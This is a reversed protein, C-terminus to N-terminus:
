VIQRISFTVDEFIVTRDIASDTDAWLELTDGLDVAILGSLSMSGTDTGAALTRHAHLNAFATAGNNKYVDVVIKHGVGASNAASISVMVMYTGSVDVEIHDNTHDPTSLQSEGNTLWLDETVKHCQNKPNKEFNSATPFHSGLRVHIGM